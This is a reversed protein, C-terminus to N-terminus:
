VCKWLNLPLKHCITRTEIISSLGPARGSGIWTTGSCMVILHCENLILFGPNMEDNNPVGVFMRHGIIILCRRLLLPAWEEEEAFPRKLSLTFDDGVCLITRDNAADDDDNDGDENDEEEEENKARDTRTIQQGKNSMEIREATAKNVEVVVAEM